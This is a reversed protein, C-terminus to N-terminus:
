GSQVNALQMVMKAVKDASKGGALPKVTEIIELSAKKLKAPESLYAIAEDAIPQTSTFYPMFEPVLRRGAIINPLSLFPTRILWKGILHWMLRNSQYMVIMPCGAAAVQLTASGSAVIAFDVQRCLGVLDGIQELFSYERLRNEHLLVMKSMDPAASYFRVDPFKQQMRLAIEQMPKWLTEIEAKRSGPLLAIKAKGPVYDAYTKINQEVPYDLEDFLPNGVFEADVGRSQFWGQEFPLICALKDCCKRLKGIRWPAWAWLQPAVYFLVPIGLKKAAKAIHFHFAPSDCVVLLDPKNASLFRKAQHILNRYYGLQGFVNYIMAARGVTNELLACGAEEMKAGGFGTWEITADAAFPKCREILNACHMEASPELASIFIRKRPQM